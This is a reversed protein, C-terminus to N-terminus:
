IIQIDDVGFTGTVSSFDIMKVAASSGSGDADFWVIRTDTEFIFRTTSLTASSTTLKELQNSNIALTATLGGGFTSAKFQLTDDAVNFINMKDGGESIANFRILDSGTEGDITDVGDGGVLIDSGLGGSLRDNGAGGNLTDTGEGGQLWDDGGLGNLTDNGLYGRIINRVSSGTLVDNGANSGYLTEFSNAIITDGAASGSPGVSGDLSVTLGVTETVYSLIDTGSGGDLNDSGAGGSVTDNGTGGDITDNGAGGSIADNGIGGVLNDAGLGGDLIDNGSGGDIIDAGGYGTIRNAFSNGTLTDAGNLSGYLNEVAASTGLADGAAAGSWGGALLSVTVAGGYYYSIGDTGLGGVFTDTGSGAYMVDDGAGGDFKNDTGAGGYIRDNGDGGNMIDNGADGSIRDNGAGGNLTDNDDGGYILDDGAGGDFVDAGALGYLKDVLAGGTWSDVGATGNFVHTDIISMRVNLDTAGADNSDWTVVARGDPLLEVRPVGQNGTATSNVVWDNSAGTGDANMIRARIDFNGSDNSSWVVLVRGDDLQIADPAVQSAANTTSITLEGVTSAVGAADYMIGKIDTDTGNNSAYTVMFGGNALAIINAQGQANAAANVVFENGTSTGDANFIRGAIDKDTATSSQWSVVFRGDSLVTVNSVGDTALGLATTNINFTAVSVSLDSNYITAKPLTGFNTVLMRGDPLATITSLTGAGVTVSAAVPTGTSTFARAFTNTGNDWTVAFSGDALATVSPSGVTASAVDSLPVDTATAVGDAGIFRALVNAVGGNITAYVAVTRGDSLMAVSPRDQNGPTTTNTVVDNSISLPV